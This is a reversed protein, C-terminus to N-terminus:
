IEKRAVLCISYQEYPIFKDFLIPLIRLPLTIIWAFPHNTNEFLIRFINTIKQSFFGSCYSIEETIFNTKNCLKILDEQKYGIVVHGGDEIPNIPNIKEIPDGYMPKFYFNPTTLFLKGNNNLCNYMDTMLKTDNIIHEINETCIIIDFKQLLDTRKNLDRVDCISFDINKLGCIRARAIGKDNNIKDWSLGLSNYGLKATAITMAGSGCGVDLLNLNQKKPLRKKLWLWRDLVLTDHHILTIINGFIKLPLNKM